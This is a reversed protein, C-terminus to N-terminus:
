EPCKPRRPEARRRTVILVAPLEAFIHATVVVGRSTESGITVCGSDELGEGIQKFARLPLRSGEAQAPGLWDLRAGAAATDPCMRRGDGSRAM